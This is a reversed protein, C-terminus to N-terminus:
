EAHNTNFTRELEDTLRELEGELSSVVIGLGQTTASPNRDFLEDIHSYKKVFWQDDTSFVSNKLNYFLENRTRGQHVTSLQNRGVDDLAVFIINDYKSTLTETMELQLDEKPGDICIFVRKGAFNNNEHFLKPIEIRGDGSIFNIDYDKLREQTSEFAGSYQGDSFWIHTKGKVPGGNEAKLAEVIEAPQSLNIAYHQKNEKDFYRAIMETSCGYGVGSEIVVDIELIECLACIAFGSRYDIGEGRFTEHPSMKSMKELFKPLCKEAFNEFYEIFVDKLFKTNKEKIELENKNM